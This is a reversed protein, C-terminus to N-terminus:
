AINVTIKKSVKIEAQLSMLLNTTFIDNFLWSHMVHTAVIGKLIYVDSFWGCLVVSIVPAWKRQIYNWMPYSASNAQTALYRARVFVAVVGTPKDVPGSTWHSREYVGLSSIVGGGVGSGSCHHQKQTGCIGIVTM